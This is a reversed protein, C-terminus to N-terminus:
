TKLCYNVVLSIIILDFSLQKSTKININNQNSLKTWAELQLGLNPGFRCELIGKSWWGCWVKSLTRPKTPPEYKIHLGVYINLKLDRSVFM